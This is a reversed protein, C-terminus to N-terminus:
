VLIIRKLKQVYEPDEAYGLNTLFVYYDGGKYKSSIRKKSDTICDIYSNYRKYEKDNKKIGFINNHSKCLKSKFGGTEHIAQALVINAHPVNQKKLERLVSKKSLPPVIAKAYITDHKVISDLVITELQTVPLSIPYYICFGIIFGILLLCCEKWYNKRM